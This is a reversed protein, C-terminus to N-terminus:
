RLWRGGARLRPRCPSPLLFSAYPLLLALPALVGFATLSRRDRPEDVLEAMSAVFFVAAFLLRAALLAAVM